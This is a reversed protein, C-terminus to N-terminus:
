AIVVLESVTLRRQSLMNIDWAPKIKLKVRRYGEKVRNDITALTEDITPKIGISVGVEVKAKRSQGLLNGFPIGQKQAIATWYATELAMRAMPHGRYQHLGDLNTKGLVAPIFFDQLVHLATGVTEYSYDRTSAAVCEGWGVAGGIHLEVLIPTRLNLGGFSTTLTEVLSMGIPHLIIREIPESDPLTFNTKSSPKSM